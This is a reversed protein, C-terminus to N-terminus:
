VEEWSVWGSWSTGAALATVLNLAVRTGAPLVERMEPTPLYLLEGQQSWIWAKLVDGLTGPTVTHILTGEPALSNDGNTKVETVATGTGDTTYRALKLRAAEAATIGKLSTVSFGHLIIQRDAPAKLEWFSRDGTGGFTLYDFPATYIRAAVTM